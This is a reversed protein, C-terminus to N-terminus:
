THILESWSIGGINVFCFKMVTATQVCLLRFSCVAWYLTEIIYNKNWGSNVDERTLWIHFDSSNKTRAYNCYLCSSLEGMQRFSTSWSALLKLSGHVKLMTIKKDIKKGMATQKTARIWTSITSWAWRCVSWTKDWSFSFFRSSNFTSWRWSAAISRNNFVNRLLESSLLNNCLKFKTHITPYFHCVITSLISKLRLTNWKCCVRM